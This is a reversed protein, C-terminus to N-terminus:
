NVPMTTDVVLPQDKMCSWEARSTLTINSAFSSMVIWRYNNFPLTVTVRLRDMQNAASPNDSPDGVNPTPNLTINYVTVTMGTTNVGANSLYSQVIGEVQAATLNGGSAYRAGERAANDLLQRAEVMRGYEWLGLLLLVLVPSVVAMEVAASGPRRSSPTSRMRM